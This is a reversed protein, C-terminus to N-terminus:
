TMIKELGTMSGLHVTWIATLVDARARHPDDSCWTLIRSYFAQLTQDLGCMQTNEATINFFM